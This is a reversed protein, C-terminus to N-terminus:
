RSMKTSYKFLLARKNNGSKLRNEIKERDIGKYFKMVFGPHTLFQSSSKLRNKM